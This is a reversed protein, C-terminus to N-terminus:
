ASVSVSVCASVVFLVRELRDSPYQQSLLFERAANVGAAESGSYQLLSAIAIIEYEVSDPSLGEDRAIRVAIKYM